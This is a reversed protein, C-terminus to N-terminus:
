SISKEHIGSHLFYHSLMQQHQLWRFLLSTTVQNMSLEIEPIVEGNGTWENRM